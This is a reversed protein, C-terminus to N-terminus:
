MYVEEMVAMSKLEGFGTCHFRYFEIIGKLLSSREIRNSCIVSIDEGSSQLFKLFMKSEKEDLHKEASEFEVFEGDAINFFRGEGHLPKFGLHTILHSLFYLHFNAVGEELQDFFLFERRLFAFLEPHASEEKVTKVLVESLFLLITTKFPDSYLTTYPSILKSSKLKFLNSGKKSQYEIECLSFPPYNSGRSGKKKQAFCSILGHQQSFFKAIVSNESYNISQIIIAQDLFDKNM